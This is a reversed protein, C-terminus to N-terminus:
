LPAPSENKPGVLAKVQTLLGGDKVKSGKAQKGEVQKVWSMLLAKIDLTEPILQEPKYDVWSVTLAKAAHAEAADPRTADGHDALITKLVDASFKFPQAKAADRDSNLVVPAHDLLWSQMAARRIGKPMGTFLTTIPETNGDKVAFFVASALAVQIASEVSSADKHVKAIHAALKTADTIIKITM